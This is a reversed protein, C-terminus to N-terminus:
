NTHRTKNMKIKNYTYTTVELFTLPTHNMKILIVGGGINYNIVKRLFFVRLSFLCSFQVFLRFVLDLKVISYMMSKYGESPRAQSKEKRGEKMGEKM